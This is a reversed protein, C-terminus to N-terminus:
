DEQLIYNIFLDKNFRPNDLYLINSLEDIVTTIFSYDLEKLDYYELSEKIGKAILIYDKRTM